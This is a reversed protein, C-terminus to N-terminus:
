LLTLPNYSCCVVVCVLCLCVCLTPRVCVCLTPRVLRSAHSPRVCSVFLRVLSPRWAYMPSSCVCWLRVGRMCLLRVAYVLRKFSNVRKVHKFSNISPLPTLPTLPTLVNSPTNPTLSLSLLPFTLPNYSYLLIHTFFYILLSTYPPTYSYSILAKM